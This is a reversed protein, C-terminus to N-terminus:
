SNKNSFNKQLQNLFTMKNGKMFTQSSTDLQQKVNIDEFSIDRIKDDYGFNITLIKTSIKQDGLYPKRTFIDELYFFTYRHQGQNNEITEIFSPSGLEKVVDDRTSHNQQIRHLVSSIEHIDNFSYGHFVKNDKKSCGGLQTIICLLHLGLLFKSKRM